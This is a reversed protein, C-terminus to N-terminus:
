SNHYQVAADWDKLDDFPSRLWSELEHLFLRANGDGLYDKLLLQAQGASGKMDITKIIALIYELLYEANTARRDVSGFSSSAPDIFDFTRLERRIWKQAKQILRLDGRIKEPTVNCYGSHRNNGIYLSFSKRRYVDKRFALTEDLAEPICRRNANRRKSHRSQDQVIKAPRQTDPLHYSVLKGSERYNVAKVETKCLPCINSNQLWTGICTFHFQDHKCPVVVVEDKILELCIVCIAPAILNIVKRADDLEDAVPIIADDIVSDYKSGASAM